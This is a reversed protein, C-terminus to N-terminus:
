AYVESNIILKAPRICWEDINRGQAPKHEITIFTDNYEDKMQAPGKAWWTLANHAAKATTFLRPLQEEPAFPDVHTGGGRARAPIAPM